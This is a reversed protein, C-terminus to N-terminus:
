ALQLTLGAVQVTTLQGERTCMEQAKFVLCHFTSRCKSVAIQETPFLVAKNSPEWTESAKRLLPQEFSFAINM